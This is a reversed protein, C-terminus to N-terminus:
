RHKQIKYLLLAVHMAVQMTCAYVNMVESSSMTIHKISCLGSFVNSFRKMISLYM